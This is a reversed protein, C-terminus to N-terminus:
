VDTRVDDPQTIEAFTEQVLEAEEYGVMRCLAGNVMVFRYDREVLALGLPGEEFVRRFREESEQLVRQAKVLAATRRKTQKRQVLLAGILIAQLVVVAATGVIRWKYQQWFTLERFRVISGPPLLDEDIGWRKLERWDFM